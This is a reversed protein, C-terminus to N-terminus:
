PAYASGGFHGSCSRCRDRGYVRALSSFGDLLPASAARGDERSVGLSSMHEGVTEGNVAETLM